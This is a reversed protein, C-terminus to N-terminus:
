SFKIQTNWARQNYNTKSNIEKDPDTWTIDYQQNINCTNVNSKLIICHEGATTEVPSVFSTRYSM